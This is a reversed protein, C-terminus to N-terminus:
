SLQAAELASNMFLLLYVFYKEKLPVSHVADFIVPWSRSDLSWSEELLCSRM